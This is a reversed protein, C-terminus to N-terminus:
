VPVAAEAAEVQCRSVTRYDDIRELRQRIRDINLALGTALDAARDTYMYAIARRSGLLAAELLAYFHNGEPPIGLAERVVEIDMGLVAAMLEARRTFLFAIAEPDGKKQIAVVADYLVDSSLQRQPDYGATTYIDVPKTARKGIMQMPTVNVFLLM